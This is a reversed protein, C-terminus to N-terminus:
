VLPFLYVPHVTCLYCFESILFSFLSCSFCVLLDHVTLQIQALLTSHFFLALKPVTSRPPAYYCVSVLMLM